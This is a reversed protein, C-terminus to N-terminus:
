DTRESVLLILENNKEDTNIVSKVRLTRTGSYVDTFTLYYNQDINYNQDLRLTLEGMREGVELGYRLNEFSSIWRIRAWTTKQLTGTNAYGGLSDAAGAVNKYINVRTNLKGFNM